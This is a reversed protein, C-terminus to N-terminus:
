LRRRREYDDRYKKALEIMRRPTKQEKKIFGNTLIVIRGASFYYLVRCIDTGFIVRLEFIGDQLLRSYPMRLAPGNAELLDLTRLLKAKLKPALSQIFDCAPAEGKETEYFIIDYKELDKGRNYTRNLMNDITFYVMDTIRDTILSFGASYVLSGRSKQFFSQM